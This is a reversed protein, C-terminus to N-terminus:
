ILVCTKLVQSAPLQYPLLRINSVSSKYLLCICTTFLFRYLCLYLSLVPGGCPMVAKNAEKSMPEGFNEVSTQNLQPRTQPWLIHIPDNVYEDFWETVGGWLRYLLTQMWKTEGNMKRPNKRHWVYTLAPINFHIQSNQSSLVLRNRLINPFFLM